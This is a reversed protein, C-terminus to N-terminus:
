PMWRMAELFRRVFQMGPEFGVGGLDLQSVVASQTSNISTVTVAIDYLGAFLRYQRACTTVRADFGDLSVLSNKCAYPAVHAALGTRPYGEAMVNVRQAFQLPHLGQARVIRHQFRITGVELDQQVILGARAACGITEQQLRQRSESAGTTNCEIARGIRTPLTFGFVTQTAAPQSGLDFVAAEHALAQGAIM